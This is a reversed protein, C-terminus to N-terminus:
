LFKEGAYKIGIAGLPATIIISLVALALILEGQPVGAAMPIAGIAAQVTAKPTYAMICFLKEKLNLNTGVLSLFVGISRATLGLLIIILGIMGADFAVYINVQAGVLVFLLLEAFVWIKNYKSALGEALKPKRELLIFGITMVGLLSAIPLIPQLVDELTTMIIAAGILMLAKKTHRISYKNFLHLFLTATIIGLIIGTAISIPIKLLQISFSVGENGYMGLFASFITIAVVDDVSVGALMITPIAKEKGKGEEIFKLMQPVVVAPSVAAIIFGLIGAEIITFGLVMHSFIIITVGEFVGPIFCLRFAARGVKNLEDRKIGLGARLLIVILAIKRLDASINMLSDDIYNLGYPGILVGLLLMGLLGPLKIKTFLKNALLGLLIIAALSFAM